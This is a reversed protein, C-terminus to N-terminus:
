EHSHHHRNNSLTVKNTQEVLEDIMCVLGAIKNLQNALRIGGMTLQRKVIPLAQEYYSVPLRMQAPGYAHVHGIRYSENVIDEITSDDQRWDTNHANM